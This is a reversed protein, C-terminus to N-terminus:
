EEVYWQLAYNYVSRNEGTATTFINVVRGSTSYNQAIHIIPQVFDLIETDDIKWDGGISINQAFVHGRRVIVLSPTFATLHGAEDDSIVCIRLSAGASIASILAEKSGTVRNGNKDNQYALKVTM